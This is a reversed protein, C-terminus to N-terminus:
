SAAAKKAGAELEAPTTVGYHIGTIIGSKSVFVVEPLAPFGFDGNTVAGVADIGIPFTLKNAAVFAKAPGVADLANVGIVKAGAVEGSAVMPSLAPMESKCPGCWSAFFILVAATGNGGGNTPVGVKGTGELSPLSFAPVKQGVKAGSGTSKDSPSSPYALLGVIILVIALGGIVLLTRLRPGQRTPEAGTEPAHPETSHAESSSM